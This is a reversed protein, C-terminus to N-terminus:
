VPSSEGRRVWNLLCSSAPRTSTTSRGGSYVSTGRSPARRSSPPGPSASALGIGLGPALPLGAGLALGAPAPALAALDLGSPVRAYVTRCKYGSTSTVSLIAYQPAHKRVAYLVLALGEIYCGRADKMRAGRPLSSTSDSYEHTKHLLDLLAVRAVAHESQWRRYEATMSGCFSAVGAASRTVSQVWLVLSQCLSATTSYHKPATAPGIGSENYFLICVATPDLWTAPCSEAVRCLRISQDIV